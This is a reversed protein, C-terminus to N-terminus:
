RSKDGIGGKGIGDMEAHLGIVVQGINEEQLHGIDKEGRM